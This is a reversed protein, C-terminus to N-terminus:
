NRLMKRKGELRPLRNREIASLVKSYRRPQTVLDNPNHHRSYIGDSRACSLGRYRNEKILKGRRCILKECTKSGFRFTLSVRLQQDTFKLDPTKRRMANMWASNVLDQFANM